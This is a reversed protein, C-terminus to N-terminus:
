RFGKWEPDPDDKYACAWEFAKWRPEEPNFPTNLPDRRPFKENYLIYPEGQECLRDILAMAAAVNLRHEKGLFARGEVPSQQWFVWFYYKYFLPNPNMGSAYSAGLANQARQEELTEFNPYDM